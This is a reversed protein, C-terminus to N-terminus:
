LPPLDNFNVPSANASGGNSSISAKLIADQIKNIKQELNANSLRVHLDPLGAVYILVIVGFFFGLIGLNSANAHGKQEALSKCVSYFVFAIIVYILIMFFIYGGM